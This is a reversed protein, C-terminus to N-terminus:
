GAIREAWTALARRGYCPSPSALGEHFRAVRAGDSFSALAAGLRGCEVRTTSPLQLLVPGLKPGLHSAREMLRTVPERPERLRKNHTLYSSAKVAMEFGAPTVDLWRATPLDEPYFAGRWDRYQWGSTGIKVTVFM